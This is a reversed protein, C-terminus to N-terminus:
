AHQRRALRDSLLQAFMQRGREDDYHHRDRTTSEMDLETGDAGKRMRVVHDLTPSFLRGRARAHIEGREPHATVVEWGPLSRVTDLAAQFVIDERAPVHIAAQAQPPPAQPPM